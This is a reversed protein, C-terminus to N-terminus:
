QTKYEEKFEKLDMVKEIDKRSKDTFIFVRKRVFNIYCRELIEGRINRIKKQKM